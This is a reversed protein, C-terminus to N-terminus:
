LQANNWALRLEDGRISDCGALIKQGSIFVFIVAQRIRRTFCHKLLGLGVVNILFVVIEALGNTRHGM